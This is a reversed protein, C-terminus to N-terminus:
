PQTAEVSRKAHRWEDRLIALLVSDRYGGRILLNQRLRGEMTMGLRALVRLSASNEPAATAYIRHLELEEFGFELLRAAAETAYGKGWYAPHLVYGLDAERNEVSKVRLGIAGVAISSPKVTIALEYITRKPHKHHTAREACFDHTQQPTNPGWVMHQVVDPNAAYTQIAEADALGIERLVIRPSDLRVASLMEVRGLHRASGRLVLAHRPAVCFGSM